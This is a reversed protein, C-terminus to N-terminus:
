MMVEYQTLWNFVLKSPSTLESPTTTSTSEYLEGQKGAQVSNHPHPQKDPVGQLVENAVPPLPGTNPAQAM